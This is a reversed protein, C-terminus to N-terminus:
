IKHGHLHQSKVGAVSLSTVTSAQDHSRLSNLEAVIEANLVQELRTLAKAILVADTVRHDWRIVVDITDRKAVDYSLLFPGPSLAHLRGAGYAATSTVGFNGFYNARQRGFNLVMAWLMRRFPRPLRM